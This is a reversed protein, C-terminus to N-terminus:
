TTFLSLCLESLNLMLVQVVGEIGVLSITATYLHRREIEATINFVLDGPEMITYNPHKTIDSKNSQLHTQFTLRQSSCPLVTSALSSITLSFVYILTVNHIKIDKSKTWHFVCSHIVYCFWCKTVLVDGPLIRFSHYVHIIDNKCVTLVQVCVGACECM